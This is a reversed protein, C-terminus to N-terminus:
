CINTNTFRLSKQTSCIHRHCLNYFRDSVTIIFMEPTKKMLYRSHIRQFVTFLNSTSIRFYVTLNDSFLRCYAFIYCIFWFYILIKQFYHKVNYLQRAINLKVFLVVDSLCHRSLQMEHFRLFLPVTWCFSLQM